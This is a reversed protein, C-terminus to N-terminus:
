QFKREVFIKSTYFTLLSFVEFTSFKIFFSIEPAKLTVKMFSLLCKIITLGGEGRGEGRGM